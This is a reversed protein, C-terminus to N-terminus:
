YGTINKCEIYNGMKQSYISLKLQTFHARIKRHMLNKPNNVRNVLLNM